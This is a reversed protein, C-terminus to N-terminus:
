FSGDAHPVSPQFTSKQQRARDAQETQCRNALVGALSGATASALQLGLLARDASPQVQDATFLGVLAGAGHGILNSSHRMLNQMVQIRGPCCRYLRIWYAISRAVGVAAFVGDAPRCVRQHSALIRGPERGQCVVKAAPFTQLWFPWDQLDWANCKVVLKTEGHRCQGRCSENILQLLEAHIAQPWHPDLLMDSILMSESLM